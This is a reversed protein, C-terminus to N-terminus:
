LLKRNVAFNLPFYLLKGWMGARVHVCAEGDDLYKM